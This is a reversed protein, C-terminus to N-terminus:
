KVGMNQKAVLEAGEVKVGAKLLPAIDSKGVTPPAYQVKDEYGNDICWQVLGAMDTIETSVSKRYSIACRASQYPQGDLARNLYDLLRERKRELKKRRDALELEEERIAKAEATLNKTWCAIGDIKADRAMQLEEFAEFDLVEGTEHDILNELAQDIHYLSLSM